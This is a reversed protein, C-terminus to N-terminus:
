KLLIQRGQFFYVVVNCLAVGGKARAEYYDIYQDTIGNDITPFRAEHTSRVLRNKLKLQGVQIPSLLKEFKEKAM